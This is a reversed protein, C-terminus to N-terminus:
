AAASRSREGSPIPQASTGYKAQLQEPTLFKQELAGIADMGILENLEEFSVLAEPRDVVQGSDLSEKLLSLGTQMGRIACATLMRPYIVVAVGLDQLQAASLLPTTSRQRIGFGMNVSLPKSVNRAINRIDDISTAADAFLLDAGAEAYLNLRRIAEQVGHTALVDTRSKIVFDPDVRADAAARIKQVMEDASIVEKGKMHGCRKPWVQDELMLGAVGAREFARVTHWVNVANGYGTDGDALLPITSCAVLARCAAVNEELGMLGVDPQGLRSESIGSGTIFAAGYGAREVLHMSFGDFVGPLPLIAPANILDRLRKAPTAM